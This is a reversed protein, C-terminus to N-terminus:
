KNHTKILDMVICSTVPLYGNEKRRLYLKSGLLQGTFFAAILIPYTYLEFGIGSFLRLIIIAPVPLHIALIWQLSYKRV